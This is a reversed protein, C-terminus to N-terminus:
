NRCRFADSGNSYMVQKGSNRKITPHHTVEPLKSLPTKPSCNVLYSMQFM